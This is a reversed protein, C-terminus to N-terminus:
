AETLPSSLLLRKGSSSSSQSFRAPNSRQIRAPTTSATTSRKPRGAFYSDVARMNGEPLEDSVAMIIAPLPAPPSTAGLRPVTDSKNPM